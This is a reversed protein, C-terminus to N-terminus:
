EDEEGEWPDFETAGCYEVGIYEEGNYTDDAAYMYGMEYVETSGSVYITDTSDFVILYRVGAPKPIIEGALIMAMVVNTTQGIISITVTMDQNDFYDADVIKGLTQDWITQFTEATGDWHNRFIRSYIYVRYSEDDLDYGYFASGPIEVTRPAGVRNGIMDLQKGTATALNFKEPASHLTEYAGDLLDLLTEAHAMLRPREKHQSEFKALYTKVHDTAM